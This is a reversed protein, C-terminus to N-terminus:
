HTMSYIVYNIAFRYALGTMPEPYAPYDAHEWADGLDMNHNIAVMLRDQDDYIGKWEPTYGDDEYTRGSSLYQIGPIQIDKNLDYLVHMLVDNDPIDIIPRDPFVRRMSDVFVSWEYTGHFDDVMLFGGRLLYERLNAAELDDLYWHGVEVAYLWPYNMLDASRPEIIIDGGVNVRTLRRVGGLLHIEADPYDTRFSSRRGAGQYALRAFYFEGDYLSWMADRSSQAGVAGFVVALMVLLCCRATHKM